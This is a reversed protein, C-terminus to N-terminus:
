DMKKLVSSTRPLISVGNWMYEKLGIDDPTVDRYSSDTGRILIKSDDIEVVVYLPEEYHLMGQLYGYRRQLEESSSIKSGLWVYSASNVTYYLIGNKDEMADGHDHGNMSLIVNSNEFLKRYEEKGYVGRNPFDNFFSHHSFIVHKKDDSLEKELWRRQEDPIIPYKTGKMRFNHQYFLKVEGDFDGYCTNLVIFKSDGKEFSYYEPTDGWFDLLEDLTHRDSEHNGVSFYMPVGTDRLKQLLRQNEPVPECFDGLSICFDPNNDKVAQVIQNLRYNGDGSEFSHYHLDTFALFKVKM